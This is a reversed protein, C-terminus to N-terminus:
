RKAQGHLYHDHNEALDPPLGEAKGVVDKLREYLSPIEGAKESSEEGLVRVEVEVGEPLDPADQLRIVGNEVHGRYVM